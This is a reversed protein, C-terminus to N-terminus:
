VRDREIMNEFDIGSNYLGPTKDIVEYPVLVDDKVVSLYWKDDFVPTIRDAWEFEKRAIELIYQKIEETNIRSIM